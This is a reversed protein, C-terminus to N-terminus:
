KVAERQWDFRASIKHLLNNSCVRLRRDFMKGGAQLQFRIIQHNKWWHLGAVTGPVSCTHPNGLLPSQSPIRTTATWRPSRHPFGPSSSPLHAPFPPYGVFPHTMLYASPSPRRLEVEHSCQSITYFLHRLIIWGLLSPASTNILLSLWPPASSGPLMLAEDRRRAQSFDRLYLLYLYWSLFSTPPCGLPLARLTHASVLLM